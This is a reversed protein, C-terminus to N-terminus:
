VMDVADRYTVNSNITKKALNRIDDRSSEVAIRSLEKLGGSSVFDEANYVNQALHCIALEIHRRTSSSTTSSNAILWTLANDNLLASRGSRNGQLIARSECKAFNAMGRAVQAIVDSNGCRAMQVLAKIAGDERLIGHLDENGCLNAIAGAVMRLAQPDDTENATNALLRIGGKSAITGQNSENMALNAIAGSAVRLITKNKSSELLVLLAELGGERVIKEQNSDEAALNAVVKAAHIQVNLEESTLLSLIKKLGVEECIKAIGSRQGFSSSGSSFRERKYSRKEEFGDESEPVVKKINVLEIEAAKRREEETTISQRMSNIKSELREKDFLLDNRETELLHLENMMAEHLQHMERLKSELGVIDKQAQMQVLSQQDSLLNRVSNLQEEADTFRSHEDAVQKSLKAIKGEYMQTSEALAKQYRSNEMEVKQMSMQLDALNKKMEEVRGEANEARAYADESQKMADVIKQEYMNTTDALVKQYASNEQQQQKTLKLNMAMHAVQDRMSDNDDKARSLEALTDKLKNELQANEMEIFEVDKLSIELRAIEDQMLDNHEKLKDLEMLLDEMKSELCANEKELCECRSVLRKEVDAFSTQYERLKTEMETKYIERLKELKDVEATLHEVQTELKRCLSEYDFEEKLKVANVIKMARQGFMVTSSTEAHHQSSPGITIILSTRASGGFSDRLLRTLKSDRTPIHPSNEALANICKGLSTLSLNIFKAEEVMHGESGSKDLRESGALDVILLKSKRITPVNLGPAGAKKDRKGSSIDSVEEEHIFRRVYVMLIAHSRSSETNLKTNAAHRNSEGIQLLQLFQDLNQIKVVSAGPVLIEGSKADEIIPINTNEPALLDQISEMYLQLYSIEVSDSSHSTNAIIDELARVMIGRESVDDKGLRGLTYTKGTGTQGYAMVTGNYGELVSEVVPKAVVEYIRKQSASAAFVEDFRYYEASWNHKRLKLKKLEPQVEVCDPYDAESLDEANRPRLRVAVRVRGPEPDDVYPSSPSPSPSPSRNRSAPVNFSNSLSRSRRSNGNNSSSLPVRTRVSQSFAQEQQLKGGGGGGGGGNTAGNATIRTASNTGGNSVGSSTSASSFSSSSLPPRSHSSSPRATANAGGGSSGGGGGGVVVAASSSNNPVVM